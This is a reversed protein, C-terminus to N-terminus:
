ANCYSYMWPVVPFNQLSLTQNGITALVPVAHIICYDTINWRTWSNVNASARM